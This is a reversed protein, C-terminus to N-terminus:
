KREEREERKGVRKEGMGRREGRMPKVWGGERM